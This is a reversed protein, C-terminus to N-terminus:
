CTTGGTVKIDEDYKISAKVIVNLGRTIEDLFMSPANKKDLVQEQIFPVHVFGGKTNKYKKDILYLLGYMLHNCVYTGATNSIEAPIKEKILENVIAKIPLSSFYANEGDEFVKKDIPQNGDNDPIRADDVNVAVREITLNSRGGAQGVCIVIDPKHNEIAKELVEISKNFVTPVELKILEAGDIKDKMKKVAELAPNIKEQGFPEFGTVLVKM